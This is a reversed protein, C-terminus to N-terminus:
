PALAAAGTTACVKLQSAVFGTPGTLNGVADDGAVVVDGVVFGGAFYARVRESRRKLAEDYVSCRHTRKKVLNLWEEKMDLLRSTVHSSFESSKFWKVALPDRTPQERVGIGILNTKWIM